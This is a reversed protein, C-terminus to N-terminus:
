RKGPRRPYGRNPANPLREVPPLDILLSDAPAFRFAEVRKNSLALAERPETLRVRSHLQLPILSM